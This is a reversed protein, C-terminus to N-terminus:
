TPGARRGASVVNPQKGLASRPLADVFRVEITTGAGVVEAFSGGLREVLADRGDAAAVLLVVFHGAARQEVRFSRVFRHENSILRTVAQPHLLGGDPRELWEDTRGEVFSLMPLQRGCPCPGPIWRAVDGLRHNLIFTGRGILSSVVVEGPEGDRVDRGGADVIRVAILDRNVHHGLHAECEFGLHPAEIASYCSFVPIGLQGSILRRGRESIADGGFICIRPLAEPAHGALYEILVEVYSGFGAVADPRISDIREANVAIPDLMSFSHTRGRLDRPLLTLRSLRRAFNRNASQPTAFSVRSMRMRRGAGQMHARRAREGHVLSRVVSAQDHHVVIPRGTTGGSSVAVREAPPCASSILSAGSEQLIRRELMPLKALDAAEVFDNPTLERQLM